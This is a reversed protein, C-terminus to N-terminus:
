RCPPRRKMNAVAVVGANNGREVLTAWEPNPSLTSMDPGCRNWGYVSFAMPPRGTVPQGTLSVSVWVKVAAVIVAHQRIVVVPAAM